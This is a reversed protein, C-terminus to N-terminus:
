AAYVDYVAGVGGQFPWEESKARGRADMKRARLGFRDETGKVKPGFVLVIGM